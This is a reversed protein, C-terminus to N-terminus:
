EIRTFLTGIKDAIAAYFGGLIENAEDITVGAAEYTGQWSLQAKGDTTESVRVEGVYNKVPLPGHQITYNFAHQQPDYYALLLRIESGDSALKNIKTAGLGNGTVESSGIPPMINESPQHFDVAQWLQDPTTDYVAVVGGNAMALGSLLSAVFAASILYTKM